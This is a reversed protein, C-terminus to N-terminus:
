MKGQPKCLQNNKALWLNCALLDKTKSRLDKCKQKGCYTGSVLDWLGLALSGLGFVLSGLGIV